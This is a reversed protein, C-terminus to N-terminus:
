HYENARIGFKNDNTFVRVNFTLVDPSMGFLVQRVNENTMKDKKDYVM